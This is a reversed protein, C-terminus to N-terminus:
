EVIEEGTELIAHTEDNVNIVGAESVMMCSGALDVLIEVDRGDWWWSLRSRFHLQSKVAEEQLVDM